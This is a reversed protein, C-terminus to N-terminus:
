RFRSSLCLRHLLFRMNGSILFISLLFFFDRYKHCYKLSFYPDVLSGLSWFQFLKLLLIFYYQIIVWLILGTYQDSYVQRLEYLYSYNLYDSLYIVPFVFRETLFIENLKHLNKGRLSSIWAVWEQLTLETYLNGELFYLIFIHFPFSYSQLPSYWLWTILPLILLSLDHQYYTGKIHHSLFLM